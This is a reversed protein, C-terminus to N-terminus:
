GIELESPLGQGMDVQKRCAATGQCRLHHYSTGGPRIAGSGMGTTGPTYISAKYARVPRFEHINANLSGGHPLGTDRLEQMFM